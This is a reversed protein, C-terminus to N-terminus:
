RHLVVPPKGYHQRLRNVAKLIPRRGVSWREMRRKGPFDLLTFGVAMTLVGQGPIGPLSLAAGFVILLAGLLNKLVRGTWRIIPHRTTWLDRVYNDDFYDAPMKVILFGVVVASAATTVLFLGVAAAAQWALAPWDTAALFWASNCM